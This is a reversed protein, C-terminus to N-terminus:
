IAWEAVFLRRLPLKQVKPLLNCKTILTCKHSGCGHDYFAYRHKEGTKNDGYSLSGWCNPTKWNALYKADLTCLFCLLIDAWSKARFIGQLLCTLCWSEQFISYPVMVCECVGEKNARKSAGNGEKKKNCKEQLLTQCPKCWWQWRKPGLTGSMRHSPYQWCCILVSLHAVERVESPNM